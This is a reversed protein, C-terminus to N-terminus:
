YSSLRTYAMILIIGVMFIILAVIFMASNLIWGNAICFLVCLICNIIYKILSVDQEARYEMDLNQFLMKFTNFITSILIILWSIWAIVGVFFSKSYYTGNSIIFGLTGKSNTQIDGFVQNSEFTKGLRAYAILCIIQIVLVMYFMNNSQLDRIKDLIKM